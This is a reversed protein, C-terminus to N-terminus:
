WFILFFSGGAFSVNAVSWVCSTAKRPPAKIMNEVVLYGILLGGRKLWIFVSVLFPSSHFLDSPQSFGRKKGKGVVIVEHIEVTICVWVDVGQVRDEIM